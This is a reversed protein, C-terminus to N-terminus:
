FVGLLIPDNKRRLVYSSTHKEIGVGANRVVCAEYGWPSVFNRLTNIINQGM